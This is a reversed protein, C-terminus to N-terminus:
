LKLTIPPSMMLERIQEKTLSIDLHRVVEVLPGGGVDELLELVEAQDVIGDGESDLTHFFNDIEELSDYSSFHELLLAQFEEFNVMGPKTKGMKAVLEACKEPAAAKGLTDLTVPLDTSVLFGDTDTDLSDFISKIDNLQAKTFYFNM